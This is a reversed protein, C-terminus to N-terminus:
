TTREKYAPELVLLVRDIEKVPGDVVNLIIEAVANAEAPEHLVECARRRGHRPECSEARITRGGSEAPVLPSLAAAFNLTPRLTPGRRAEGDQGARERPGQQTQGVAAATTVGDGGGAKRRGM